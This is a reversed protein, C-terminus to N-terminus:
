WQQAMLQMDCAGKASVATGEDGVETIASRISVHAETTM